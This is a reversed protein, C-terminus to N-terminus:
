RRPFLLTATTRLAFGHPSRDSTAVWYRPAVTFSVLQSGIRTVQSVALTVPMTFTKSKWDYTMDAAVAFTMGTGSARSVFPNVFSQSIDGRADSGAFSWIHNAIGGITWRGAQRLLVGTPGGGWKRGSLLQDTGTPLLLVPGFGWIIGSPKAPSFFFSQVIDGLGFQSGAGPFIDNQYVLPVITRSILNINENLTFPIVPQALLSVRSGDRAPGIKFDYNVQLPLSILAALPNSLQQALAAAENGATGDTVAEVYELSVAGLEDPVEVNQARGPAAVVATVVMAFLTSLGQRHWCASM